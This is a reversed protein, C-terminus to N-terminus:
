LPVTPPHYPHWEWVMRAFSRQGPPAVGGRGPHRDGGRTPATECSLGRRQLALPRLVSVRGSSAKTLTSICLKARGGAPPASHVGATCTAVHASTPNGFWWALAFGHQWCPTALRRHCSCPPVQPSSMGRLGETGGVM